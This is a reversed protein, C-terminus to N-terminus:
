SVMETLLRVDRNLRAARIANLRFRLHHVQSGALRPTLRCDTTLNRSENPSSPYDKDPPAPCFRVVRLWGGDRRLPSPSGNPPTGGSCLLAGRYFAQDARLPNNAAARRFASRRSSYWCRILLSVHSLFGRGFILSISFM